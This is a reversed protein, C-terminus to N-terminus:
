GLKDWFQNLTDRLAEPQEFQPLGKTPTIRQLHWNEHREVVEPLLDFSVFADEDYVVLVPITLQEYVSERIDRTFLKGSVFYLPANRAGAQHGTLYDYTALGVDVPGVFSMSLFWEISRKTVLLDYFAQSWLRSSLLGYATDTTGNETASQSARKERSPTFGSPSILTLSHFLDPRELAARAAFEGGLSLAIVDAQGTIKLIDLVAQTYLQPSYVRDARESHGFGPLDLAYVPRMRRYQEFIPRMEYASAAANISHILVLPRGAISTDAYYSLTGTNNGSFTRREANIAHPLPWRHNIGLASYVIWGGVTALTAGAVLAAGSAGSKAANM